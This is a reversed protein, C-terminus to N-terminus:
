AGDTNVAFVTGVASGGGYSATGYLTNGSLMLGAQPFGGDDNVGPFGPVSMFAYLTTFSTGDTNVAFVTGASSNGGEYATGYLTNGSLILGAHPNAGDGNTGTNPDAATFSVARTLKALESM